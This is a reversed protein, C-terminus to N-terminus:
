TRFPSEPVTSHQAMGSGHKCEPQAHEVAAQLTPARFRGVCGSGAKAHTVVPFYCYPAAKPPQLLTVRWGARNNCAFGRTGCHFKPNAVSQLLKCGIAVPAIAPAASNAAQLLNFRIAVIQLMPLDFKSFSVM